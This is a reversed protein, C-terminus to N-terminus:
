REWSHCDVLGYGATYEGTSPHLMTLKWVAAKM